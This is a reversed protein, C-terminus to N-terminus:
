LDSCTALRARFVDMPSYKWQQALLDKTDLNVYLKVVELSSHGLIRQLTLLDGGNLLFNRAFTHRCTHPGLRKGHIGAERCAQAIIKYVYDSTLPYGARTLFVNDISSLAPTPRYRHVYDLLTRCSSRGLPVIREKNGKGLVKFYGGDICLNKMQLNVLESVRVGTDLLVHLMAYNRKGQATPKRITTLLRSVEQDTFFPMAVTAIKPTKIHRMPNDTLLGEMVAWSFFAKLTKVYGAVTHSSLARDGTCRRPNNEGVKVQTQLHHVFRRIEQVTIEEVRASQGQNRLFVLFYELKQRYWRITRPSKGEIQCCLLYNRVLTEVSNGARSLSVAWAGEARVRVGPRVRQVKGM